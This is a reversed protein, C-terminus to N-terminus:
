KFDENIYVVTKVPTCSEIINTLLPKKFKLLNKYEHSKGLESLVHRVLLRSCPYQMFVEFTDPRFEERNKGILIKIKTKKDDWTAFLNRATILLYLAIISQVIFIYKNIKYFPLLLVFTGAFVLLFNYINIYLFRRM